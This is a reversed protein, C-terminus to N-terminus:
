LGGPLRITRDLVRLRWVKGHEGLVIVGPVSSALDKSCGTQLLSLKVM